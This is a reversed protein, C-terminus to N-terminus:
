HSPPPPDVYALVHHAAPAHAVQAASSLHAGIGLAIGCLLTLIFALGILLNMARRKLM